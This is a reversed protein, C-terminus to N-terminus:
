CRASSSFDRNRSSSFCDRVLRRSESRPLWTSVLPESVSPHNSLNPWCHISRLSANSRRARRRASFFSNSFFSFCLRLEVRGRTMSFFFLKPLKRLTPSPADSLPTSKDSLGVSPRLSVGVLSVALRVDAAEFDSNGKLFAYWLSKFINQTWGFGKALSFASLSSSFRMTADRAEFPPILFDLHFRERYLMDSFIAGGAEIETIGPQMTCYPLTGSGGCSVIDIRHGAKRCADASATIQAVAEQVVRAKEAPDAIATAQSEWTMLGALRVGKMAAVADALAVVSAGPAVGARNMGVNVEIVVPVTVGAREAAAAIPACNAVSDVGVMVEATAQLAVLRAIKPAGVIENAILISRVGAAAMVEAEGVKACTIGIAGAALEKRVIEVTKNGKVHPRWNVGNDHCLKAIRAINAEVVDLDVILAPTDLATVTQGLLPDTAVDNM